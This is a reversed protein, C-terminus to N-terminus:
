NEDNEEDDFEFQLTEGCNPCEVSGGMLTEEDVEFAIECNPCEVEYSEEFDDWDDDDDYDGNVADELDIVDDELSDLEDSLDGIEDYCNEVDEVLNELVDVIAKLVKTEKAEEDLELRDMLGKVYGLSEVTDM